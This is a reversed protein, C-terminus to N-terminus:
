PLTQVWKYAAVVVTPDFSGKKDLSRSKTILSSIDEIKSSKKLNKFM